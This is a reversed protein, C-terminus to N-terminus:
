LMALSAITPAAKLLMGGLAGIGSDTAANSQAQYQAIKQQSIDSDLGFIKNGIDLQQNIGTLNAMGQDQIGAQGGAYGSGQLAGQNTAAAQAQARALQNSRIQQMQQQRGTIQMALQRQANQKEELGAINEQAKAAAAADESGKIAGFASIGLGVLGIGAGLGAQSFGGGGADDPAPGLTNSTGLGTDDLYSM